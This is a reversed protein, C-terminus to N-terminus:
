WKYNLQQNYKMEWSELFAELADQITEGYGIPVGHDWETLTAQYKQRTYNPAEKVTVSQTNM